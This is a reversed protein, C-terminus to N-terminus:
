AHDIPHCNLNIQTAVHLVNQFFPEPTFHSAPWFINQDGPLATNRLMTGCQFQTCQLEGDHGVLTAMASHM